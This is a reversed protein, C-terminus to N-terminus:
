KENRKKNLQKIKNQDIERQIEHNTFSRKFKENITDLMWIAGMYKAADIRASKSFDLSTKASKVMLRRKTRNFYEVLSDYEMMKNITYFDRTEKASKAPIEEGWFKDNFITKWYLKEIIKKFM